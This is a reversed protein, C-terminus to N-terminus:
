ENGDRRQYLERLKEMVMISKTGNRVSSNQPMSFGTL